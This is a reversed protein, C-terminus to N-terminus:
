EFSNVIAKLGSDAPDLDLAAQYVAKARDYQKAAQYAQGQLVLVSKRDADPLAAAKLLSGWLTAAEEYSGGAMKARALEDTYRFDGPKLSAATALHEESDDANGIARELLAMRYWSADDRGDSEVIAAYERIAAENKGEAALVLAMLRRADLDAPDKSILKSLSQEAEAYEGREYLASAAALTTDGRTGDSALSALRSIAFWLSSVTLVAGLAIIGAVRLSVFRHRKHGGMAGRAETM